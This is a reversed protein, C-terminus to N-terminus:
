ETGESETSSTNDGKNDETDIGMAGKSALIAEKAKHKESTLKVVHHFKDIVKDLQALKLDHAQAGLAIKHSSELQDAKLHIEAIANAHDSQIKTMKAEHNLQQGNLKVQNQTESDKLQIQL